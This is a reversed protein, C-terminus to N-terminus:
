ESTGSYGHGSTLAVFLPGFLSMQQDISGNRREKVSMKVNSPRIYMYSHLPFFNDYCFYSIDSWFQCKVLSTIKLKPHDISSRIKPLEMDIIIHYM